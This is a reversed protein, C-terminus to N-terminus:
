AELVARLRDVLEEMSFPKALADDFGVERLEEMHTDVVHGTMAVVRVGPYQARLESLLEEGGMRPMVIDTLVLDVQCTCAAQLAERGDAATVVHYGFSRLGAGIAQCLHQADDVVLLTEGGSKGRCTGDGVASDYLAPGCRETRAGGFAVVAFLLPLTSWADLVRYSSRAPLYTLASGRSLGLFLASLAAALLVARLALHKHALDITVDVEELDDANM